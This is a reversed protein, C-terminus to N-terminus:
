TKYKRDELLPIDDNTPSVQAKVDAAMRETVCVCVCVPLSRSFTGHVFPPMFTVLGM